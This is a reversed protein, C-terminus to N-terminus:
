QAKNSSFDDGVFGGVEDALAYSMNEKNCHIMQRCKPCQAKNGSMTATEFARTDAFFIPSPFRTGCNGCKIFSEKIKAM